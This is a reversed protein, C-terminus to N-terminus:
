ECFRFTIHGGYVSYDLGSINPSVAFYSTEYFLPLAPMAQLLMQEVVSYAEAMDEYNEKKSASAVASSFDRHYFGTINDADTFLSFIAGPNDYQPTIPILALDYNKSSVAANLEEETVPILNIFVALNDQVSKQVFGMAPIFEETCIVTITPLKTLGLEELGEKFLDSAMKPDFEFGAFSEGVTKRYNKGNLTVSPPVFADAIRFNEEIKSALLSKDIAYAFARRIKHNKLIEDNTNFAMAWTTNESELIDFGEKELIDKDAPYLVSADVTEELLRNV